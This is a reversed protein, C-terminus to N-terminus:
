FYSKPELYRRPRTKWRQQIGRRIKYDKHTAFRLDAPPMSNYTSSKLRPVLLSIPGFSMKSIHELLGVRCNYVLSSRFAKQEIPLRSFGAAIRDESFDASRMRLL